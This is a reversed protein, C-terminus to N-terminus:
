PEVQAVRVRLTYVRGVGGSRARGRLVRSGGTIMAYDGSLMSYSKEVLDTGGPLM